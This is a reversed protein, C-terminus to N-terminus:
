LPGLRTYGEDFLLLTMLPLLTVPLAVKTIHSTLPRRLFKGPALLVTFKNSQTAHLKPYGQQANHVLGDSTSVGQM